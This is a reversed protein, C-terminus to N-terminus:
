ESVDEGIAPHWCAAAHGPEKDTLPPVETRCIDTAHVCRPHFACGGPRNHLDPVSGPISSLDGASDQTLDPTSELLGVTYRHAPREFLTDVPAVEVVRGAYMVAVWDAVDAIVGMDHTILLM